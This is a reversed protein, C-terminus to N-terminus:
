AREIQGSQTRTPTQMGIKQRGRMAIEARTRDLEQEQQEWDSRNWLEVHDKVGLVTVERGLGSKRLVKDPILIRGQKDWELRTAMAFNMMDFALLDQEPAIESQSRLAFAEYPREPYLWPRGNVGPVLFFAEGDAEPDIARRIEAPVLMRNKDDISVEYNGYLLRV